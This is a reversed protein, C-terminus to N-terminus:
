YGAIKGEDALGGGTGNKAAAKSKTEFIRVTRGCSRTDIQNIIYM